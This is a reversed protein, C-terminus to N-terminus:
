IRNIRAARSATPKAEPQHSHRSETCCCSLFQIKAFTLLMGAELFGSSSLRAFSFRPGYIFNRKEKEFRYTRSYQLRPNLLLLKHRDRALNM